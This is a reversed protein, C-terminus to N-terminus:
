REIATRGGFITLVLGVVASVAGGIFFITTRQTFEGTFTKSLQDTFSDARAFGFFLLAIGLVLLALGIIRALTM